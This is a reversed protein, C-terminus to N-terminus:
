KSPPWKPAELGACHVVGKVRRIFSPCAFCVLFPVELRAVPCNVAEKKLATIKKSSLAGKLEETYEKPIRFAKDRKYVKVEYRTEM